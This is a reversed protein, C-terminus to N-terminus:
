EARRKKLARRSKAPDVQGTRAAEDLKGRLARPTQSHFLVLYAPLQDPRIAHGTLASAILHELTHVVQTARFTRKYALMLPLPCPANPDLKKRSYADHMAETDLRADVLVKDWEAKARLIAMTEPEPLPESYSDVREEKYTTERPVDELVHDFATPAECQRKAEDYAQLCLTLSEPPIDNFSDLRRRALVVFREAAALLAAERQNM